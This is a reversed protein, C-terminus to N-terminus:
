RKEFPLRTTSTPWMYEFFVQMMKRVRIHNWAIDDNLCIFAMAKGEVKAFARTASSPSTLQDFVSASIAIVYNYRQILHVSFQRRKWNAHNQAAISSLSFNITRWNKGVPLHAPVQDSIPSSSTDNSSPGIDRDPFVLERSPLFAELGAAGSQSVLHIILCDGCAPEEFAFRSFITNTNSSRVRALNKPWCVNMSMECIDNKFRKQAKDDKEIEARYNLPGDRLCLGTAQSFAHSPWVFPFGDLSSFVYKSALPVPFKTEELFKEVSEMESTKRVRMRGLINGTGDPLAGMLRYTTALEKEDLEGDGDLDVKSVFFSWLLAERHREITLGNLLLHSNALRGRGRFRKATAEEFEDRWMMKSELLLPKSLSKHFHAPYPFIRTGFRKQLLSTSWRLGVLEGNSWPEDSPSILNQSDLHLVSGYLPSYFDATSLSQGLFMDDSALFSTEALGPVNLGLVAEAAISNFSPLREMKWYDIDEETKKFPTFTEWDHHLRFAVATGSKLKDDGFAVDESSMNLWQPVQGRRGNFVRDQVGKMASNKRDWFDTSVIHLTGLNDKLSTKASRLSYLLENQDRFRKDENQLNVLRNSVDKTKLNSKRKELGRKSQYPLASCNSPPPRQSSRMPPYDITGADAAFRARASQHRPDSGNVWFTIGDM